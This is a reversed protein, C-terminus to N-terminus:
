DLEISTTVPTIVLLTINGTLPVVSSNLSICVAVNLFKSLSTALEFVDATGSHFKITNNEFTALHALQRYFNIADGETVISGVRLTELEDIIELVKVRVKDTSLELASAIDDVKVPRLNNDIPVQGEQFKLDNPM